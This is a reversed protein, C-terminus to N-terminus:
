CSKGDIIQEYRSYFFRSHNFKELSNNYFVFKQLVVDRLAIYETLIPFILTKQVVGRRFVIIVFISHMEQRYGLRMLQGELM